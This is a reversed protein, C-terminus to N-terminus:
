RSRRHARAAYLAAGVAVILVAAGVQFPATPGMTQYITGSVGPGIVRGLSSAGQTLGIVLGRDSDDSEAAAMTQFAPNFLGLGTAAVAMAIM